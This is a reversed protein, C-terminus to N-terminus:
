TSGNVNKCIIQSYYNSFNEFLVWAAITFVQPQFNASNDAISIYDDVGDFYYASNSNNFRDSTTTAGNVTGNHAAPGADNANANFPYWALLGNSPVYNPV